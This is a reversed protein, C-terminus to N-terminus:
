LSAIVKSRMFVLGSLYITVFRAGRETSGSLSSFSTSNSKGSKGDMFAGRWGKDVGRRMRKGESKPSALLYFYGNRVGRRV